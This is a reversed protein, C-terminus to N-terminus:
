LVRIRKHIENLIGRQQNLERRLARDSSTTQDLQACLDANDQELCKRHRSLDGCLEGILFGFAAPLVMWMPLFDAAKEIM